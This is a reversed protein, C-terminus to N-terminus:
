QPRDGTADLRSSVISVSYRDSRLLSPALCAGGRNTHRSGNIEKRSKPLIAERDPVRGSADRILDITAGLLLLIVLGVGPLCLFAPRKIAQQFRM